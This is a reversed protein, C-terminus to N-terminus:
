LSAISILCNNEPNEILLKANALLRSDSTQFWLIAQTDVLLQM